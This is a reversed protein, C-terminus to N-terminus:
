LYYYMKLTQQNIEEPEKKKCFELRNIRFLIM